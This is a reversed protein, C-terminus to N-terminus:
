LNCRGTMFTTLHVLFAFCLLNAGYGATSLQQRKKTRIYEPLFEVKYRYM